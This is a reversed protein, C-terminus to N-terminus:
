DDVMSGWEWSRRHPDAGLGMEGQEKLDASDEEEQVEAVKHEDGEAKDEEEQTQEDDEESPSDVAWGLLRCAGLEAVHDAEQPICPEFNALMIAM